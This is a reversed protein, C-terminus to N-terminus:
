PKCFMGCVSLAFSLKPEGVYDNTGSFGIIEGESVSTGVAREASRLGYYWTQLGCGHDIIILTGLMKTKGNFVIKGSKLAYVREGDVSKFYSGISTYSHSDTSGDLNILIEAGFSLDKKATSSSLKFPQSVDTYVNPTIQSNITDRITNLEVIADAGLMLDYKEHPISLRFFEDTRTTVTISKEIENDGIKFIIKYTGPNTEPSIAIAATKIGNNESFGLKSTKIESNLSVAENENLYRVNALLYGGAEVSETSLSLTSPIDYLAKFEYQAKGYFSSGSKRSWEAEIKITFETDTSFILKSLDTDQLISENKDYLKIDILDPESSFKLSNARDSYLSLIGDDSFTKSNTYPVFVDNLQKYQWEYSKPLVDTVKDGTFVSLTPLFNNKYLYQSETRSLFAKATEQTFIYAKGDSKQIMCGTLGLEPYIKFEIIKDGRDCFVNIAEGDNFDRLPTKLQESYLFADVYFKVSSEDQFVFEGGNPTKVTVTKIGEVSINQSSYVTIFYVIFAIPLFLLGWLLAKSGTRERM